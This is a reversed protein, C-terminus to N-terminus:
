YISLCYDISSRRVKFRKNRSFFRNNELNGENWERELEALVEDLWAPEDSTKVQKRKTKKNADIKQIIQYAEHGTRIGQALWNSLVKELYQM